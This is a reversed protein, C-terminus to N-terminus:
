STRRPLIAQIEALTVPRMAWVDVGVDVQRPLPKMRGHSHGHLNLAGKGMGNWSRFPYHCLVLRAGDLSLEAYDAVSAWGPLGRVAEPDNNGAVLHKRGNLRALVAAAVKPMAFDGLHWIEDDPEVTANWAAVLAEDMAAVSTFPRRYLNLVRHDGFHTDSTFFTTM